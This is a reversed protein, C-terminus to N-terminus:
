LAILDGTAARIGTNRAGSLGHNKQKLYVVRGRFSRLVEELEATDPSGDNVVVVEFAPKTQAFVSNLTEAIYPAVNYAPIVVSVREAGSAQLLQGKSGEAVIEVQPLRGTDEM